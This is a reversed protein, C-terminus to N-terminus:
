SISELLKFFIDVYISFPLVRIRDHEKYSLELYFFVNSIYSLILSLIVRDYEISAVFLPNYRSM